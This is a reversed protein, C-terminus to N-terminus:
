RPRSREVPDTATGGSPKRWFTFAPREGVVVFGEGALWGILAGRVDFADPKSVVVFDPYPLGSLCRARLNVVDVVALQRRLGISPCGDQTRNAGQLPVGYYRAGHDYAGWWVTEQRGLAAEALMAAHRYDDKAHREASMSVGSVILATSISLAALTSPVSKRAYLAAISLALLGAVIPVEPM